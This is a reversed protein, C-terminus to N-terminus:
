PVSRRGKKPPVSSAALFAIIDRRQTADGVTVFMKSGPAFQQPGRLWQDLRPPTWNGAVKRLAPSYAYGPSSAIRRGVIGRHAPGIRNADLSHCGGCKAMYTAQGKVPDGVPPAPAPSSPSPGTLIATLCLGSAALLVLRM